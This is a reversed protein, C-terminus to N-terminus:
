RPRDPFEYFWCGFAGDEGLRELLGRHDRGRIDELFVFYKLETARRTERYHWVYSTDGRFYQIDVWQEVHTTDWRSHECVPWDLEAYRARLEQLRPHGESLEAAASPLPSTRDALAHDFNPDYRVLAYGLGALGRDVLRRAM